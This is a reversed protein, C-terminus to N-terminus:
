WLELQVCSDFDQTFALSKRRLMEMGSKDQEVFEKSSLAIVHLM